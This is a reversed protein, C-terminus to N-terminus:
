HNASRNKLYEITKQKHVNRLKLSTNSYFTHRELLALQETNWKDFDDEIVKNELLEKYLKRSLTNYEGSGFYDFYADLLVKELMSKPNEASKVAYILDSIVLIQENTYGYPPLMDKAMKISKVEHDHYSKTFGSNYFLAATKVMLQEEDSLNEAKAIIEVQDVFNHSFAADHFHINEPLETEMKNLISGKLDEFNLHAYRTNFENGPKLGEGRESVEPRYSDIVYRELNGM